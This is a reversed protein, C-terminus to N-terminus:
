NPTAKIITKGSIHRWIRLVSTKILDYSTSKALGLVYAQIVDSSLCLIIPALLEDLRAQPNHTIDRCEFDIGLNGFQSRILDLESEPIIGLLYELQITNSM